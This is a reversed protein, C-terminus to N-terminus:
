RTSDRTLSSSFQRCDNMTIAMRAAPKNTELLAFIIRLCKRVQWSTNGCAAKCNLNADSQAYHSVSEQERRAGSHGSYAMQGTVPGPRLSIVPFDHWLGGSKWNHQGSLGAGALCQEGVCNM